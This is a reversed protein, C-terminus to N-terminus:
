WVNIQKRIDDNHLEIIIIDIKIVQISHMKVLFM